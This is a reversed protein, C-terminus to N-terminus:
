KKKAAPKAAPKKAPAAKKSAPKAAPKKSAAKSARISKLNALQRARRKAAATEDTTEETESKEAIFDDEDTEDSTEGEEAVVPRGVRKKGLSARVTNRRRQLTAMARALAEEDSVELEDEVTEDVEEVAEYVDEADDAAFTEDAVLDDGIVDQEFADNNADDLFDVEEEFNEVEAAKALYKAAIVPKGERTAMAALIMNDLVPSYKKM